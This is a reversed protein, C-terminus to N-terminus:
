LAHRACNNVLANIAFKQSYIEPRKFEQVRTQSGRSCSVSNPLHCYHVVSSYLCGLLFPVSPIAPPTSPLWQKPSPCGMSSCFNGRSVAPNYGQCCCYCNGPKGASQCLYLLCRASVGATKMRPLKNSQRSNSGTRMALGWRDFSNHFAAVKLMSTLCLQLTYHQM